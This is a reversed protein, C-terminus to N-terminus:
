GGAPRGTWEGEAIAYLDSLVGYATTSLDPDEEVILVKGLIDTTLRLISGTGEVAAFPHGVPIERACVRGIVRAGERVAECVMKVRSGRAHAALLRERGVAALSEREVEEPAMSAGMLVNALAALKVAADWGDLDLSPDAEAVGIRQAAAVAEALSVGRELAGLVFNTTANLIGDLREVTNGRLCRRALNFVPTGDMVTAEHLLACGSEDALAKLETYAWAIPGKNATVVHRGRSLAHRVHTIAPEGRREVDLTTLEVLVDYDLSRIAALGDAAGSGASGPLFGTRRFDSVVERPDIGRADLLAGHNRTVIGVVALDLGTLAPHRSREALIEVLRRGVHGLGLLLVRLAV